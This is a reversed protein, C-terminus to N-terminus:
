NGDHGHVIFLKNSMEPEVITTRAEASTSPKQTDVGIELEEIHGEVAAIKAEL